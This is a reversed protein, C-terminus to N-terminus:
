NNFFYFLWEPLCIKNVDFAPIDQSSEFGDLETPVIGFAGKFLNQKGYIFQGAKRIYYKTGGEVGAEFPRKEVGKVNLRVTIRKDPNPNASEIKSETLVSGLKVKKWSM